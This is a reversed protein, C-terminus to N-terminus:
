PESRVEESRSMKGVQTEAATWSLVEDSSNDPGVIQGSAQTSSIFQGELTFTGQSTTLPISFQVGNIPFSQTVSNGCSTSYVAASASFIFCFIGDSPTVVFSLSGTGDDSAQSFKYTGAWTSSVTDDSDCHLTAALCTVLFFCALVRGNRTVRRPGRIGAITSKSNHQLPAAPTLCGRAKM